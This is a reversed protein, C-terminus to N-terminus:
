GVTVTVKQLHWWVHAEVHSKMDNMSSQLLFDSSVFIQVTEGAPITEETYGDLTYPSTNDVPNMGTAAD